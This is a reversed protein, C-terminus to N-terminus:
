VINPSINIGNDRGSGAGHAYRAASLSAGPTLSTTDVSYLIKQTSSVAASPDGDHGGTFYGASANGTASIVGLSTPLDAGPVRASTDSSFTMKSVTSTATTPSSPPVFGGSFYGHTGSSSAALRWTVTPLRAPLAATTDSAYTLKEFTSQYGSPASGGGFYGHTSNGTGEFEKRPEVLNAGPIRATTDDSFTLKDMNSFFPGPGPNTGGGFYGASSNGVSAMRYRSASLNATSPLASSADTSYTVKFVNTHYPYPQGGAVYAASLSGISGVDRRTAPLNAGPIRATTETTFTLKDVISFAGLPGSGGMFYGTNPAGPTQSTTLSPTPTPPTPFTPYTRAGTGALAYRAASLNAGPIRSQTEDSYSLKDVISKNSPSGGCFYGSSLNGTSAMSQRAGSALHSSAPLLATTETSFTLKETNSRNPSTGGSFYGATSSSSAGFYARSSDLNAGPIREVTNSAYEIKDVSTAYNSVYGGVFYANTPSSVAGLGYKSETLQCGSELNQNTDNSFTIKYVQSRTSPTGAAFYGFGLTGNGIAAHSAIPTNINASPTYATTDSSYTLKDVTSKPGPQGGGFYGATFSSCAALRYRAASLNGGPIRATTDSSFSIKDVISSPTGGGVYGTDPPEAAGDTFRKTPSGHWVEPLPVWEGKSKLSGTLRLGFVGRTDAM